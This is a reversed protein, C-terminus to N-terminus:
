HIDIETEKRSANQILATNVEDEYVRMKVELPTPDLVMTKWKFHNFFVIIGLALGISYSLELITFGKAKQGMVLVYIEDFIKQVSGDNNFTSIAFAAGCFTIICVFITKIWQKIHGPKHPIRYDIIFDAEGLNTVEIKSDMKQILEIIKMVSVIYRNNKDSKIDMLKIARCKALITKDQCWLSAVDGLLVETKHMEVNQVISMYLTENM